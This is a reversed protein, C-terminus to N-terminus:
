QNEAEQVLDAILKSLERTISLMLNPNGCVQARENLEAARAVLDQSFGFSSNHIQASDQPTKVQEQSVAQGLCKHYHRRM